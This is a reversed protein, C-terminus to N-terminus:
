PTPPFKEMQSLIYRWGPRQRKVTDDRWRAYSPQFGQSDSNVEIVYSVTGHKAYMWDISGGDADYLLDYVVGATYTGSGSDRVLKKALEKGVLEYDTRAPLPIRDPRCGYPYIVIESFSHYSVNLRPKISAVLSMLGQTEPESGASAGRYTESNRDGSSGNCKNWDQPYNRNIDVGYGGRTNKRWMSSSTWVKQSGDPNVMPVIWIAYKHMWKTIESDTSYQTVLQDLIDLTVEPTMVERAHHLSDFLVTPKPGPSMKVFRATIEAAYIDRGEVTTGIKHVAVFQPYRTEYDLLIKTVEDPTKYSSDPAYMERSALVPVGLTKMVTGDKVVLTIRKKDQNVGAVDWGAAILDRVQKPGTYAIQMYRFKPPTPASAMLFFASLLGFLYQAM